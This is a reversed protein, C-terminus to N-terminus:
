RGAFRRPEGPPCWALRHSLGADAFVSEIEARGESFHRWGEFHLPVITTRPWARALAVAEAATFTLPLPGAVEVRAAGMNLCAIDVPFRLGIEGIGEYWVTDGSVYVTPGGDGPELLFGLVPGRDGGPPGHRGPTATLALAPGGPVACEIRQWPTMGIANGGLRDAGAVTTYVAAVRPLLARGLHDLNDFHHDHSLLVGALPLVREPALAPGTTKHLTYAPTPYDTGAPDFTPDTLFRLGSLELLATPGDIYTIVLEPELTM